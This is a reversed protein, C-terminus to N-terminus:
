SIRIPFKKEKYNTPLASAPPSYLVYTTRCGAEVVTPMGSLGALPM